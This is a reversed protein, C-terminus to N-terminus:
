LHIIINLDFRLLHSWLACLFFYESKRRHFHQRSGRTSCFRSQGFANALGAVTVKNLRYRQIFKYNNYRTYPNVRPYYVKRKCPAMDQLMGYYWFHKAAADSQSFM